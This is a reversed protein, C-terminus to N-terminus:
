SLKIGKKSAKVKLYNIFASCSILMYRADESDLNPEDMLGHRIGETENTYGYINSYGKKLAGHIEIIGKREILTLADGLTLKHHKPDNIILKCMSEVANISDKISNRYDPDNRNSYNSLARKLQVEVALPSNTIAEEIEKIEEESTIDVFKCDVLRYASNEEKLIHNCSNSICNVLPEGEGDDEYPHDEYPYNLIVFELFDYVRDWQFNFYRERLSACLNFNDDYMTDLPEKFFNLWLNRALRDIKNCYTNTACPDKSDKIKYWFFRDLLNWLSNKLEDDMSEFQIVKQVPRKGIRQSFLM